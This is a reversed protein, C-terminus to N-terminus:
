ESRSEIYMRTWNVFECALHWQHGKVMDPEAGAPWYIGLRGCFGYSTDGFQRLVRGRAEGHESELLGIMRVPLAPDLPEAANEITKPSGHISLALFRGGAAPRWYRCGATLSESWRTINPIPM